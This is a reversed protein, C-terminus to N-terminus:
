RRRLMDVMSTQARQDLGKIKRNTITGPIMAQQFSVRQYLTLAGSDLVLDIENPTLKGVEKRLYRYWLRADYRSTEAARIVDAARGAPKEYELLIVRRLLELVYDPAKRYSTAVPRSEWQKLTQLPIRYKRAFEAQTLGTLGRLEKIKM